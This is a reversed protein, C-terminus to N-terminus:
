ILIPPARQEVEDLIEGLAKGLVDVVVLRQERVVADPLLAGHADAHDGCLPGEGEAEGARHQAAGADGPIQPFLLGVLDVVAHLEVDRDALAAVAVIAVGVRRSIFSLMSCSIWWKLSTVSPRCTGSPSTYAATSAGFPSNPM